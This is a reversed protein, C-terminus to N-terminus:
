KGDVDIIATAHSVKSIWNASAPTDRCDALMEKPISHSFTAEGHTRHNDSRWHTCLRCFKPKICVHEVQEFISGLLIGLLGPEYKRILFVQSASFNGQEVCAIETVVPLSSAPNATFLDESRIISSKGAMRLNLPIFRTSSYNWISKKL